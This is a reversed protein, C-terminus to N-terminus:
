NIGIIRQPILWGDHRYEGSANFQTYGYAREIYLQNNAPIQILRAGVFILGNYNFVNGIEQEKNYNEIIGTFITNRDKHTLFEIILYKYNNINDLLEVTQSDFDNTPNPNTWLIKKNLYDCSYTDKKSNSFTNITESFSPTTEGIKKIRM